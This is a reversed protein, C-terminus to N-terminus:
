IVNKSNLIFHLKLVLMTTKLLCKVTTDQM